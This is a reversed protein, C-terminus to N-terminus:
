VSPGTIVLGLVKVTNGPGEHYEHTKVLVSQYIQEMNTVHDDVLVSSGSQSHPVPNGDLQYDALEFPTVLERNYMM